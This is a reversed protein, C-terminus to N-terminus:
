TQHAGVMEPIASALTTL